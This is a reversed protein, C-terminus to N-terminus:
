RALLKIGNNRAFAELDRIEAIDGRGDSVDVVHWCREDEPDAMLYCHFLKLHAEIADLLALRHPEFSDLNRPM